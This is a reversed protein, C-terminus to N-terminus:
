NGPHFQTGAEKLATLGKLHKVGADTIQRGCLSLDTLRMMGDLGALTADTAGSGNVYLKELKPM